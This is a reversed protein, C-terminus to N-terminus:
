REPRVVNGLTGGFLGAVGAGTIVEVGVDVEAALEGPGSITMLRLLALSELAPEVEAEAEVEPVLVPAVPGSITSFRPLPLLEFGSCIVILRPLSDLLPSSCSEILTPM